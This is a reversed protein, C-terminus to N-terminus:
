LHICCLAMRHECTLSKYWAHQSESICLSLLSSRATHSGEWNAILCLWSAFNFHTWSCTHGRQTHSSHWVTFRCYAYLPSQIASSGMGIHALPSYCTLPPVCFTCRSTDFTITLEEYLLPRVKREQKSNSLKLPDKSAASM